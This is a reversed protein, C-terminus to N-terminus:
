RPTKNLDSFQELMENSFHKGTGEANSILHAWLDFLNADSQAFYRFGCAYVADWNGQEVKMKLTQEGLIETCRKTYYRTYKEFSGKEWLDADVLAAVALAEAGGEHIWPQEGSMGGNRVDQQWLHAMEHAILRELMHQKEKSPQLLEKGKYIMVLQNNKAGGKVTFSDITHIDGSSLMIQPRNKLRHKLRETYIKSVLPVVKNFSEVLWAPMNPDVILDVEGSRKMTQPGFYIYIGKGQKALPHALINEKLLTKYDFTAILSYLADNSYVDGFLFETYLAAGTDSFKASPAYNDMPYDAYHKVRIEISIVPKDRVILVEGDDTSVLQVNDSLVEWSTKRYDVIPAGLLMRQIPQNFHYEVLWEEPATHTVTIKAKLSAATLPESSYSMGPAFLLATLIIVFLRIM